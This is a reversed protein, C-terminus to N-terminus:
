WIDNNEGDAGNGRSTVGVVPVTFDRPSVQRGTDYMCVTPHALRVFDCVRWKRCIVYRERPFSSRTESFDVECGNPVTVRQNKPSPLRRCLARRSSTSACPNEDFLPGARPTRRRYSLPINEGRMIKPAMRRGVVGVAHVFLRWEDNM